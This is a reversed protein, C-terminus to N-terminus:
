YRPVRQDVERSWADIGGLVNYVSRFGRQLFAEAAAQSRQGHHCLFVLATAKDLSLLEDRTSDDLLRAGEISAKGHEEPTRVDILEFAEGGARMASLEQVSLNKVKPPENPNEIKFGGEGASSYDITM